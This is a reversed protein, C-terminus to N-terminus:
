RDFYVEIKNKVIYLYDLGKTKRSKPSVDALVEWVRWVM